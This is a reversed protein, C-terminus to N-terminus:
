CALDPRADRFGLMYEAEVIIEGLSVEGHTENWRLWALFEEPTFPRSLESPPSIDSHPSSSLSLQKAAQNTQDTKSM